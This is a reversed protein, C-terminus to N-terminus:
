CSVAVCGTLDPPACKLCFLAEAGASKAQDVLARITELNAAPVGRQVEFQALAIKM